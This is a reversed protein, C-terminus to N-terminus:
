STSRPLIVALQERKSILVGECARFRRYLEEPFTFYALPEGDHIDYRSMTGFLYDTIKKGPGEDDVSECHDTQSNDGVRVTVSTDMMEKQFGTIGSVKCYSKIKLEVEAGEVDFRLNFIIGSTFVSRDDFLGGQGELMFYHTAFPHQSAYTCVIDVDNVVGNIIDGKRATLARLLEEDPKLARTLLRLREREAENWMSMIRNRMVSLMQWFQNNDASKIAELQQETMGSQNM